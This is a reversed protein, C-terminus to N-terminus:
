DRKFRRNVTKLSLEILEEMSGNKVTIELDDGFRVISGGHIVKRNLRLAMPVVMRRYIVRKLERAGYEESIGEALLAEKAGDTIEIGFRRELLRDSVLNQLNDLEIELIMRFANMPLHNYTTVLDLRNMFEPSFHRRAAALSLSVSGSGAKKHFGFAGSVDNQVAKAGLNSTMFIFSHEFNTTEGTGLTLSGKDIIGLLIHEITHAAKEIEDFLIIAVKGDKSHVNELAKPSLRPESKDFGVYSPPAGVIKSIEHDSQFEGCDIRLVKKSDKHIIEAIAEVTRTKGVGTPGLMMCTFAPRGPPRLGSLYVEIYDSIESIAQDQGIVMQSLRDAIGTM